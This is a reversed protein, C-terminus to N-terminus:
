SRGQLNTPSQSDACQSHSHNENCSVLQDHVDTVARGPCSRDACRWYIQGHADETRRNLSRAGRTTTVFEMSEIYKIYSIAGRLVSGKM